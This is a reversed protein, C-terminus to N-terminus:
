PTAGKPAAEVLSELDLIEVIEDKLSLLGTVYKPLSGTPAVVDHTRLECEGSVPIATWEMQKGFARNAILYFKRQPAAPGMLVKAIDLVPIIRGRRYLVGSLLPTTHPFTQLHDPRALETVAGAPLAFRKKGLPFLVFKLQELM